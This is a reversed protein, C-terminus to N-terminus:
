LLHKFDQVVVNSDVVRLLQRHQLLKVGLSVVTVPHEFSEFTGEMSFFLMLKIFLQM